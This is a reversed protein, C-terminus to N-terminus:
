SRVANLEHSRQIGRWLAGALSNGERMAVLIAETVGGPTTAQAVFAELEAGALGRPQIERAWKLLGSYEPLGSRVAVDVLEREDTTRGMSEWFTLAIPLCPGLVTFAHAQSEESLPLIQAGLLQLIARVHANGAPYIAAIAKGHLLTDPASTMVRMRQALPVLVPITNLSVGALFSVFLLGRAPRHQAIAKYHQPRVDSDIAPNSSM